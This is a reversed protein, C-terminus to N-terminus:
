TQVHSYTRRVEAVRSFDNVIQANAEIMERQAEYRLDLDDDGGKHGYRADFLRLADRIETDAYSSSLVRTLKNTLANGRRDLGNDDVTADSGTAPLDYHTSTSGMDTNSKYDLISYFRTDHRM